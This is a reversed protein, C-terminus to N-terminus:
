IDDDDDDVGNTYGDDNDSNGQESDDGDWEAGEDGGDIRDEQEIESEEESNIINVNKRPPKRKNKVRGSRQENKNRRQLDRRARYTTEALQRSYGELELMSITRGKLSRNM